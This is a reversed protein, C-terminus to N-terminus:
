RRLDIRNNTPDSRDHVTGCNTCEWVLSALRKYGARSGDPDVNWDRGCARCGNPRYKSDNTPKRENAEREFAPPVFERFLAEVDDPALHRKVADIEEKLRDFRRNLRRYRDDTARDDADLEVELSALRATCDYYREVLARYLAVHLQRSVADRFGDRGCPEHLCDDVDLCEDAVPARNTTTLVTRCHPSRAELLDRVARRTADSLEHRVVAVGASEDVTARADALSAPRVVRVAEALWTEYLEARTSADFVVVTPFADPLGEVPGPGASEPVPPGGEPDSATAM